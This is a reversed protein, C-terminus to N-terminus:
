AAGRWEAEVEVMPRVSREGAARDSVDVAAALSRPLVTVILTSLPM